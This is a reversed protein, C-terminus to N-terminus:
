LWIRLRNRKPFIIQCTNSTLVRTSSADFIAQRIALQIEPKISIYAEKNLTLEALQHFTNIIKLVFKVLNENFAINGGSTELCSIGPVLQFLRSVRIHKNPNDYHHGLELQVHKVNTNPRSCCRLDNWPVVLHSLRHSIHLIKDIIYVRQSQTTSVPEFTFTVSRLRSFWLDSRLSITENM